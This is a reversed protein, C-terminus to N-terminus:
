APTAMVGFHINHRWEPALISLHGADLHLVHGLLDVGRKAPTGNRGTLRKLLVQEGMQGLLGLCGRHLFDELPDLAATSAPHAELGRGSGHPGLAVSM